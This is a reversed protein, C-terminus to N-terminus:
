TRAPCSTPGVGGQVWDVGTGGALIDAGQGGRVLDDGAGGGLVDDGRAGWIQDAGNTGDLIDAGGRGLLVAGPEDSFSGFFVRILAAADEARSFEAPSGTSLDIM